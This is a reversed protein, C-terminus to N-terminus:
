PVKRRYWLQEAQRSGYTTQIQATTTDVSPATADVNVVTDTSGVGLTLTASAQKNLQVEFGKLTAKSFGQAAATIDYLGPLLNSFRYEGSGNTTTTARVNTAENVADVTANAVVAGSNDVVTGVLDGSVKQGFCIAASLVLSVLGLARSIRVMRNRRM